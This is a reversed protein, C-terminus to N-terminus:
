RDAKRAAHKSANMITQRASTVCPAPVHQGPAQMSGLVLTVDHCHGTLIKALLVSREQGSSRRKEHEPSVHLLSNESLSYCGVLFGPMLSIRSSWFELWALNAKYLSHFPQILSSWSIDFTMEELLVSPALLSLMRLM